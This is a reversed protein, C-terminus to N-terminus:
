LRSGTHGPRVRPLQMACGQTPSPQMPGSRRAMNPRTRFYYCLSASAPVPTPPSKRITEFTNYLWCRKKGSDNEHQQQTGPQQRDLVSVQRSDGRTRIVSDEIGSVARLVTPTRPSAPRVSVALSAQPTQQIQSQQHSCHRHRTVSAIAPTPRTERNLVQLEQSLGDLVNAQLQSDTRQLNAEFDSVAQKAAAVNQQREWTAEWTPWGKWRVLYETRAGKGRKALISEVEYQDGDSSSTAPPPRTEAQIRLPFALRGDHYAKLRSVNLVPHIRLQSPLDLEYANDNVVRKIKFPGIYKYTFKATRDSGDILKLHATSLLVEDGIEFRVERRHKDAHHAQRQQAKLLHEKAADLDRHLQQIRAAADPQRTM